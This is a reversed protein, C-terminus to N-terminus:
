NHLDNEFKQKRTLDLQQVQTKADSSKELAQSSDKLREKTRFYLLSAAFSKV